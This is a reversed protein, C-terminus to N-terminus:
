PSYPSGNITIGSFTHPGSLNSPNVLVSNATGTPDTITYGDVTFGEVTNASWFDLASHTNQTGAGSEVTFTCNLVDYSGLPNGGLLEELVIGFGDHNGSANLITTLNEFKCYGGGGGLPLAFNTIYGAADYPNYITCDKVLGNAPQDVEIGVDWSNYGVCNTVECAGLHGAQGLHYNEQVDFTTPAANLTDHYCGRVYVRDINVNSGTPAWIAFGSVGGYARCNEILVDSIHATGSAAVSFDFVHAQTYVPVNSLICDKITLNEISCGSNPDSLFCSFNTSGLNQADVAFGQVTTMRYTVGSGSAWTLFRPTSNTLKINAGSGLLTLPSLNGSPLAIPSAMAYTAAPFYVTGGGTATVADVAAQIHSSDDTTGDAHAGFEMVSRGLSGKGGVVSFRNLARGIDIVTGVETHTYASAASVAAQIAPSDNTVGDGKAGYDKVNFVSAPLTPTPTPTPTPAPTPTATPQPNPHPQKPKRGAM